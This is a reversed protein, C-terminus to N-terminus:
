LRLKQFLDGAFDGVTRVLLDIGYSEQLQRYNSAVYMSIMTRLQDNRDPRTNEYTYRALTVITDANDKNADSKYLAEHLKRLALTQLATIGHYDAFVYVRAHVLFIETGYLWESASNSALTFSPESKIEYVPEAEPEPVELAFEAAAEPLPEPEEPVDPGPSITMTWRRLKKAKRPREWILDLDLSREPLKKEKEEAATPREHGKYNGTYAFQSFLVFTLEDTESWEVRKETAEKM